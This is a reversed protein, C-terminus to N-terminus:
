AAEKGRLARLEDLAAHHAATQRDHRTQLDALAHIAQQALTRYSQAEIALDVVFDAPDSEEDPAPRLTWTIETDALDRTVPQAPTSDPSM